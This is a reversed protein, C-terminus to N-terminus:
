ARDAGARAAGIARAARHRARRRGAACWQEVLKCHEAVFEGNKLTGAAEIGAGADPQAGFEVKGLSPHILPM